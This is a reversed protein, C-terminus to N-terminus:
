QLNRPDQSIPPPNPTSHTRHAPFFLTRLCSPFRPQSIHPKFPHRTPALQASISTLRQIGASQTSHLQYLQPGPSKRKSTSLPNQYVPHFNTSSTQNQRQPYKQYSTTAPAFAIRFVPVTVHLLCTSSHKNIYSKQQQRIQQILLDHLARLLSSENGKRGFAEDLCSTPLPLLIELEHIMATTKPISWTFVGAIDAMWM